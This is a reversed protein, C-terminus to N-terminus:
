HGTLSPRICRGTQADQEAQACKNDGLLMVRFHVGKQGHGAMKMMALTEDASCPHSM